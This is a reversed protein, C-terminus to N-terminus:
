FFTSRWENGACLWIALMNKPANLEYDNKVAGDSSVKVRSNTQNYVFAWLGNDFPLKLTYYSPSNDQVGILITDRSQLGVNTADLNTDKTYFAHQKPPRRIPKGNVKGVNSLENRSVNIDNLKKVGSIANETIKMGSNFEMAGVKTLNTTSNSNKTNSISYINKMTIGNPGNIAEIDSIAENIYGPTPPPSYEYAEFLKQRTEEKRIRWKNKKITFVLNTM